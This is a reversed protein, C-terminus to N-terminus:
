MDRIAANEYMNLICSQRYSELYDKLCFDGHLM